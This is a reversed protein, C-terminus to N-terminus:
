DAAHQPSHADTSRGQLMRCTSMSVRAWHPVVNAVFLSGLSILVVLQDLETSPGALTAAEGLM